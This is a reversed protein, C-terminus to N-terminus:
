PNQVDLNLSCRQPYRFCGSPHCTSSACVEEIDGLLGSIGNLDVFIKM